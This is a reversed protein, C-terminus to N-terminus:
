KSKEKLKRLERLEEELKKIQNRLKDNETLPKRSLGIKKLREIGEEYEALEQKEEDTLRSRWGGSTLGSRFETKTQFEYTQDKSNDVFTKTIYTRGSPNDKPLKIYWKNTKKEFWLECNFVSGDECTLIYKDEVKKITNM